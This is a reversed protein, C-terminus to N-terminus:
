RQLTAGAIPVAYRECWVLVTVTRDPLASLAYNFSGREARLPGLKTGAPRHQGEGPVLYVRPTPTGEIDVGAFRLVLRGDALRQLEVSGTARHGGLGHLSGTALKAATPTPSSSATATAVPTSSPLAEELSTSTFYPEVLVVTAVLVPLAVATGAWVPRRLRWWALAGSAVVVVAICALAVLVRGSGLDTSLRESVSGLPIV